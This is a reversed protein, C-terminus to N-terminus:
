RKRYEAQRCPVPAVERKEGGEKRWLARPCGGEEELCGCPDLVVWLEDIVESAETDHPRIGDLLYRM